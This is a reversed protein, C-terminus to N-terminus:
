EPEDADEQTDTEQPEEYDADDSFDNTEPENYTETDETMSEPEDAQEEPTEIASEESVDTDDPVEMDEPEEIVPPSVPEPEPQLDLVEQQQTMADQTDGAIESDSSDPTTKCSILGFLLMSSCTMALVKTNMKEGRKDNLPNPMAQRGSISSGGSSAHTADSIRPLWSAKDQILKFLIYIWGLPTMVIVTWKLAWLAKGKLSTPRNWTDMNNCTGLFM